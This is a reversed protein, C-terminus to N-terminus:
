PGRPSINQLLQGAHPRVEILVGHLFLREDRIRLGPRDLGSHVKRRMPNLLQACSLLLLRDGPLETGHLGVGASEGNGRAWGRGPRHPVVAGDTRRPGIEVKAHTVRRTAPKAVNVEAALLLIPHSAPQLRSGWAFCVM